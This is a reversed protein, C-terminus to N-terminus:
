PATVFLNVTGANATVLAIKTSSKEPAVTFTSVITEKEGINVRVGQVHVTPDGDSMSLVIQKEFWIVVAKGKEDTLELRPDDGNLKFTFTDKIRHVSGANVAILLRRLQEQELDQFGSKNTLTNHPLERLEDFAIKLNFNTTIPATNINMVIKTRQNISEANNGRSGNVALWNGVLVVDIHGRQATNTHYHCKLVTQDTEVTFFPIRVWQHHRKRV